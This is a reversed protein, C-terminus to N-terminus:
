KGSGQRLEREEVLPQVFAEMVKGTEIEWYREFGMADGGARKLDPFVRILNAAAKGIGEPTLSIPDRCASEVYYRITSDTDSKRREDEGDEDDDSFIRVYDGTQQLRKALAAWTAEGSLQLEPNANAQESDPMFTPVDYNAM